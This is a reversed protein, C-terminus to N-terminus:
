YGMFYNYIQGAASDGFNYGMDQAMSRRAVEGLRLNGQVESQIEGFEAEYQEANWGGPVTFAQGDFGRGIVQGGGLKDGKRAGPSLIPAPIRSAVGPTSGSTLLAKQAGALQAKTLDINAQRQELDLLAAKAAVKAAPDMYSDVARGINNGMDSVASGLDGVTAPPPGSSPSIGAGVLPHLGAKVADDVRWQIQNQLTEKTRKWDKKSADEAAEANILGGAINGVATIAEGIM